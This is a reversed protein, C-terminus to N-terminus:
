SSQKKQLKAKKKDQKEKISLKPKNSKTRAPQGKVMPHEKAIPTPARQERTRLVLFAAADRATLRSPVRAITGVAIEPATAAM